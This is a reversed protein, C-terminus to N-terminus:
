EPTQFPGEGPQASPAAGGSSAASLAGTTAPPHRLSPAGMDGGNTGIISDLEAAHADRDDSGRDLALAALAGTVGGIVAGAVLGPPGAASGVAAGLAMGSAVGEAEHFLHRKRARGAKDLRTNIKMGQWSRM